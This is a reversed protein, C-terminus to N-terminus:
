YIYRTPGSRLCETEGADRRAQWVTKISVTAADDPPAKGTAEVSAQHQWLNYHNRSDAGRGHHFTILNHELTNVANAKEAARMNAIIDAVGEAVPTPNRM